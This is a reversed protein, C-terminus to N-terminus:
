NSNSENGQAHCILQYFPGNFLTKCCNSEHSKRKVQEPKLESKLQTLVEEINDLPISTINPSSASAYNFSKSNSSFISVLEEAENKELQYQTQEYDDSCNRSRIKLTQSTSWYSQVEIEDIFYGVSNDVLTAIDWPNGIFSNSKPSTFTSM